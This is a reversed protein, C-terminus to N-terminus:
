ITIEGRLDASIKKKNDYNNITPLLVMLKTFAAEPTMDGGSFVGCDILGVGSAYYGPRVSGHMCQTVAVVILDRELIKQKLMYLFDPAEPANGAGFSRLVVGRVGEQNLVRELFQSSIGPFLAIDIVGTELQQNLVLPKGLRMSNRVAHRCIQLGDQLVSALPKCNPSAFAARKSTSIKQCRNGRLVKNAFVVAVEALPKGSLGVHAAIKLALIFNNAADTRASLLPLQSGTVVVPKALNEFIFSLASATYALTDSGHIIIFGDYYEYNCAIRRAITLWDVPKMSSSDVPQDLSDFKIKLGFQAEAIVQLHPEIEWLAQPKLMLASSQNSAAM